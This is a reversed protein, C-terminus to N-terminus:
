RRSLGFHGASLFNEPKNRMWAPMWMWISCSM